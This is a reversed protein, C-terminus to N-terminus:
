LKSVWGFPIGERDAETSYISVDDVLLFLM